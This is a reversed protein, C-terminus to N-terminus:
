VIVAGDINTFVNDKLQEKNVTTIVTKNKISAIFVKDGMLILADKVGKEEAKNFGFKLRKIEENSLTMDRHDMRNIAHKSFKIEDDRNQIQQLVSEFNKSPLNKNRVIPQSSNILQNELRKIQLNNMIVM